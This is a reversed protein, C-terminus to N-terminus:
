PSRLGQLRRLCFGLHPWQLDRWEEGLNHLAACFSDLLRVSQMGIQVRLVPTPLRSRNWDARPM